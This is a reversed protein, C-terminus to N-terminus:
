SVSLINPIVGNNPIEDTRGQEILEKLQAFTLTQQGQDEPLPQPPTTVSTSAATIVGNRYKEKAARAEDLTISVDSISYLNLYVHPGHATLRFNGRSDSILMHFHAVFLALIGIFFGYHWATSLPTIQWWKLLVPVSYRALCPVLFLANM